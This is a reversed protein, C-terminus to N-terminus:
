SSKSQLLRQAQPVWRDSKIRKPFTQLKDALAEIEEDRLDAVQAFSYIGVRNLSEEMKPGIGRIRKLDDVAKRKENASRLAAIAEGLRMNEQKLFAVSDKAQNLNLERNHLKKELDAIRDGAQARSSELNSQSGSQAVLEENLRDREEELVTLEATRDKLARRLAAITGERDSDRRESFSRHSGFESAEREFKRNADRLRAAEEELRVMANKLNEHDNSAKKSETELQGLLQEKSQIEARASQLARELANGNELRTCLLTHQQKYHALETSRLRLEERLRDTQGKATRENALLQAELKQAKCIKERLSANLTEIREALRQHSKSADTKLTKHEEEVAELVMEQGLLEQKLSTREDEIRALAEQDHERRAQLAVLRAYLEQNQQTLQKSLARQRDSAEQLTSISSELDSIREDKEEILDIQQQQHDRLAASERLLRELQSMSSHSGSAFERQAAELAAQKAELASELTETEASLEIQNKRLTETREHLRQNERELSRGVQRMVTADKQAEYKQELSERIEADLRENANEVLLNNTKLIDIKKIARAIGTRRRRGYKLFALLFGIVAAAILITAQTTILSHM